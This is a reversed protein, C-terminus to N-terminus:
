GFGQHLSTCPVAEQGRAPQRTGNWIWSAASASCLAEDLLRSMLWFMFFLHPVMGFGLFLAIVISSTYRDGGVALMFLDVVKM